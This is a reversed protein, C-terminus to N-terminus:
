PRNNHLIGCWFHHQFHFEFISWWVSQHLLCVHKLSFDQLLELRSFSSSWSFNLLFPDCFLLCFVSLLLGTPQLLCGALTDDIVTKNEVSRSSRAQNCGPWACWWCRQSSTCEWKGQNRAFADEILNQALLRATLHCLLCWGAVVSLWSSSQIEFGHKQKKVNWYCVFVRVDIMMEVLVINRILLLSVRSLLLSAGFFFQRILQLRSSRTKLGGLLRSCSRWVMRGRLLCIVSCPIWEAFRSSFFHFRVGISARESMPFLTEWSWFLCPDSLLLLM